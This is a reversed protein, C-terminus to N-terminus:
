LVLILHNLEFYEWTNTKLHTISQSLTPNKILRRVVVTMVIVGQKIRKKYVEKTEGLVSLNYYIMESVMLPTGAWILKGKM